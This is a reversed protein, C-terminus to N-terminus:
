ALGAHGIGWVHDGTSNEGHGREVGVAALGGNADVSDRRPYWLM